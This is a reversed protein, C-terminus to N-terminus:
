EEYSAEAREITVKQTLPLNFQIALQDLGDIVAIPSQVALREYCRLRYDPKAQFNQIARRLPDICRYASEAKTIAAQPFETKLKLVALDILDRSDTSTDAWRDGNALLKEAIQDILSLCPIPSWDPYTPADLPIRGEAVIEFKLTQQGLGLAFRVGDRDTRLEGLLQVGRLQDRVFLADFEQDYLAVRLRSFDTGYPCLFDIDRSLRYEGYCLTLLTGGGFYAHCAEFFDAKLSRLVNLIQNHIPYNFTM